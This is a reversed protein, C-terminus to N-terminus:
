NSFKFWTESSYTEEPTLIVDPFNIQNPSNPFHQTEFCFGNRKKYNKGKKSNLTGDLFNGTYFQIGPQDSYVEMLIGSLNSRAQAVKRVGKGYDNLVWCHDYGIGYILQKNDLNIDQGIKKENRFDFPTNTVNRIEGTPILGSDVPLFNDANIIVMHDLIDGSSEGLLNFYSHQTLNLITTADTNANYLIKLENKDNLIYKVVVNLNGPYGEEMHKSLYSLQLGIFNKGELEEVSWIVKDFGKIGGHLSHEGNNIALNYENGDINFKGNKIRNGYRGIIAGFYPHENIYGEINDFGLVVDKLNGQDDPVKINTIIGGYNIVEVSITSNSLKYKDVKQGTPLEGFDTKYITMRSNNENFNCSCIIIIILIFLHNNFIFNIINKKM